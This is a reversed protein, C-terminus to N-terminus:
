SATARLAHAEAELAAARSLQAQRRAEALLEEDRREQERRERQSPANYRLSRRRSVFELTTLSVPAFFEAHSEALPDDAAILQGERITRDDGMIFSTTCRLRDDNLPPAPAFRDPHEKVLRSGAPLREGLAVRTDSPEDVFEVLARVMAPAKSM